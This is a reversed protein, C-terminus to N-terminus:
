EYERWDTLKDSFLTPKDEDVLVFGAVSENFKSLGKGQMVYPTMRPETMHGPYIVLYRGDPTYQLSQLHTHAGIANRRERLAAKALGNGNQEYFAPHGVTWGDESGVYVYDYDTVTFTHVDRGRLAAHVLMEFSLPEDLKKTVRKCHNGPLITISDFVRALCVLVDGGITLTQNLSAQQETKPHNSSSAFDFFDGGIVLQTIKHKQAVLMLRKIYQRNHLPVHLDSCYLWRSYNLTLPAATILNVNEPVEPLTLTKREDIARERAELAETPTDYMGVSGRGLSRPLRARFREGVQTIGQPLQQM